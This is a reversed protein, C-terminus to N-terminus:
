AHRVGRETQAPLLHCLARLQELQSEIRAASELLLGSVADIYPTREDEVCEALLRLRDPLPSLNSEIDLLPSLSIDSM